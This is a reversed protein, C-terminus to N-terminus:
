AATDRLLRQALPATTGRGALGGNSTVISARGQDPRVIVVAHWLTNSGEHAVAGDPGSIWGLAYRDGELPTILRTLSDSSLWGEPGGGMMAQVFRGYGALTMHATGAPGLMPPNDAHPTEPDIPTRTGGQVQHGWANAGGRVNTVPAGFGADAIGLPAFVEAAMVEEWALGTIREIAAGVLVYNANGYAFAGVTGSPPRTLVGALAARQEGVPRRDARAVVPLPLDAQDTLGAKHRMLDEVVLGSFADHVATEPFAEALPMDWRASGREVLRAWIAATMAKTNSGLHWRDDLTAADEQGHRRVGRAEAWELGDRTVLAAAVAPPAGVLMVAQDLATKRPDRQRTATMAAATTPAALIAAATTLLDRRSLDPM